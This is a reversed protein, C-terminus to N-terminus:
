LLLTLTKEQIPTQTMLRLLPPGTQAASPTSSSARSSARSRARKSTPHEQSNENDEADGAENKRKKSAKTSRSPTKRKRPAATAPSEQESSAPAASYSAAAPTVPYHIDPASSPGANGSPVLTASASSANSISPLQSIEIVTRSAESRPTNVSFSSPRTQSTRPTALSWQYLLVLGYAVRQLLDWLPHLPPNVFRCPIPSWYQLSSTKCPDGM